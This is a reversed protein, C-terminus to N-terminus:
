LTYSLCRNERIEPLEVSSGIILIITTSAGTGGLAACPWHGFRMDAVSCIGVGAFVHVILM